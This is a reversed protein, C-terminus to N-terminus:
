LWDRRVPAGSRMQLVAAAALATTVLDEPPAMTLAALRDDPLYLAPLFRNLAVMAQDGAAGTSTTPGSRGEGALERAEESRVEKLAENMQAVVHFRDHM